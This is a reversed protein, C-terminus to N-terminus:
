GPYGKMSWWPHTRTDKIDVTTGGILTGLSFSKRQGDKLSRNLDRWQHLLHQPCFNYRILNHRNKASTKCVGLQMARAGTEQGSKLVLEKLNLELREEEVLVVSGSDASIECTKIDM